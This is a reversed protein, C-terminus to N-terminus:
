RSANSFRAVSAPMALNAAPSSSLKPLYTTGRREPGVEKQGRTFPVDQHDILNAFEAVPVPAEGFTREKVRSLLKSVGEGESYMM